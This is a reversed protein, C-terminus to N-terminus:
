GRHYGEDLRGILRVIRRVDREISAWRREERRVHAAVVHALAPVVVRAPLWTGKIKVKSGDPKVDDVYMVRKAVVVLDGKKM